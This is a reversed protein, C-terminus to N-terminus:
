KTLCLTKTIIKSQKLVKNRVLFKYYGNKIKINSYNEKMLKILKKDDTHHYDLGYKNLFLMLFLHFCKVVNYNPNNEENNINTLYKVVEKINDLNSQFKIEFEEFTMCRGEITIYSCFKGISDKYFHNTNREGDYKLDELLASECFFHKLTKIYKLYLTDENEAQSIDFSYISEEAKMTWYLFSLFRYTFSRLYYKNVNHWDKEEINHWKREIHASLNWLRYNLEEASKILPTKTLALKNKIEIRQNFNFEKRMKYSFSYKEYILKCIGGLIFVILSVSGSVLASQVTPNKSTFWNALDTIM